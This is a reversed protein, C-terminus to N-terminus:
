CYATPCDPRSASLPRSSAATARSAQHRAAAHHRLDPGRRGGARRCADRREPHLSARDQRGQEAGQQDLLGAGVQLRPQARSHGRPGEGVVRVQVAGHRGAGPRLRHQRAEPRRDPQGAVARERRYSSVADAFPRKYRVRVEFPGLVDTGEYPGLMDVAGQSGTKPDAITDFTFKVAEANFPTGDHFKVDERLKLTVSKNDPAVTWSTALGPISSATRTRRSWSTSCRSSSRSRM